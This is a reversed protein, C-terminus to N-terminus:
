FSNREFQNSKCFELTKTKTTLFRQFHSQNCFYTTALHDL